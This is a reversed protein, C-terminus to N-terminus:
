NDINYQPVFNINLHLIPGFLFIATNGTGRGVQFNRPRSQVKKKEKKRKISPCLDQTINTGHYVEGNPYLMMM